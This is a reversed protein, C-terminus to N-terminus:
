VRPPPPEPRGDVSEPTASARVPSQGTLAPTLVEAVALEGAVWMVTAFVAEPSSGHCAASRIVWRWAAVDGEDRVDEGAGAPGTELDDSVEVLLEAAEAAVAPPSDGSVGPSADASSGCCGGATVGAQPRPTTRAGAAASTGLDQRSRNVWGAPKPCRCSTRCVEASPCGCGRGLCPYWEGGSAAAPGRAVPLVLRVGGFGTLACLVGAIVSAVVCWRALLLHLPTM